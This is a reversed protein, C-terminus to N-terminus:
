TRTVVQLAAAVSADEYRDVVSTRRPGFCRELGSFDDTRFRFAENDV